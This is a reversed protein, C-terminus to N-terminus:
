CKINFEKATNCIVAALTQAGLLVIAGVVTWLFTRKADSIKDENGRAAIFLYGSYVLALVVVIVGVQLVVETIKTIIQALNEAGIPSEFKFGGSPNQGAALVQSAGITIIFIWIYINLAINSINM